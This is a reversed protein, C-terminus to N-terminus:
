NQGRSLMITNKYRCILVGSILSHQPKDNSCYAMTQLCYHRLPSNLFDVLCCELMAAFGGASCGFAVIKKYKTGILNRIFEISEEISNTNHRFGLLYYRCMWVSSNPPGTDRLFLKDVNKYSKMFNYFNFTPISQKWGMGALQLDKTRYNLIM